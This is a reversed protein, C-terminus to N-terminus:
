GLVRKGDLEVTNIKFNEYTDDWTIIVLFETRVTAGLGNQSDVFSEMKVKKDTIVIDWDDEYMSYKATSPSSLYDNVTLQAATVNEVFTPHEEETGRDRLLFMGFAFFGIIIIATIIVAYLKTKDPKANQQQNTNVETSM